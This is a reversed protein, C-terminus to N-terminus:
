SDEFDDYEEDNRDDIHTDNDDIVFLKATKHRKARVLMVEGCVVYQISEPYITPSYLKIFLLRLSPSPNIWRYKSQYYDLSKDPTNNSSVSLQLVRYEKIDYHYIHIFNESQFKAIINHVIHLYDDAHIANTDSRSSCNRCEALPQIIDSMNVFAPVGGFAPAIDINIIHFTQFEKTAQYKRLLNNAYLITDRKYDDLREVVIDKEDKRVELMGQYNMWIYDNGNIERFIRHQIWRHLKSEKFYRTNPEASFRYSVEDYEEYPAIHIIPKLFDHLIDVIEPIQASFISSILENLKLVSM